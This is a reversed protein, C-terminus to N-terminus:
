TKIYSVDKYLRINGQQNYAQEKRKFEARQILEDFREIGMRRSVVLQQIINLTATYDSLLKYVLKPESGVRFFAAFNLQKFIM